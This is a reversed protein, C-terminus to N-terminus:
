RLMKRRVIEKKKQGREKRLMKRLSQLCLYEHLLFFYEEIIEFHPSPSKINEQNGNIENFLELLLILSKQDDQTESFSYDPVVGVGQISRGNPTLWEAITM